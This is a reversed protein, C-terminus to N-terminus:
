PGKLAVYSALTYAMPIGASDSATDICEVILKLYDGLATDAVLQGHATQAFTAPFSGASVSDIRTWTDGRQSILVMFCSDSLGTGRLATGPGDVVFGYRMVNYPKRTDAILFTDIIRYSDNAVATTVGDTLDLTRSKNLWTGSWVTSVLLLVIALLTIRNRM